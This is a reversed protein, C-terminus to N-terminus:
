QVPIVYLHACLFFIHKHAEFQQFKQIEELENNYDLKFINNFM